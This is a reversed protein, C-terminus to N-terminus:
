GNGCGGKEFIWLTGASDLVYVKDESVQLDKLQTFVDSSESVEIKESVYTIQKTEVNLVAFILQNYNFFYLLNGHIESIEIDSWVVGKKEFENKLGYAIVKPKGNIDIEYFLDGFLGIIKGRNEDLIYRCGYLQYGKKEASFKTEGKLKKQKITSIRYCLKGKEIDIGIIENSNLYVWFMGNYVGIFQKVEIARKQTEYDLQWMGLISLDFYWITSSKKLSYLIIRKKIDIFFINGHIYIYGWDYDRFLLETKNFTIKDFLYLNNNEDILISKEIYKPLVNIIVKDQITNITNDILNIIKLDNEYNFFLNDGYQTLDDNVKKYIQNNNYCVNKQKDKYILYKGISFYRVNEIVQKVKLM